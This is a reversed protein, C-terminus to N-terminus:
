ILIEQFVVHPSLFSNGLDQSMQYKFIWQASVYREYATSVNLKADFTHVNHYRSKAFREYTGIYYICAVYLSSELM